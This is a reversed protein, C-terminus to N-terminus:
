HFARLWAETSIAWWLCHHESAGDAVAQYHDALVTSDLWERDASRSAAFLKEITPVATVRLARSYLPYPDTKGMAQRVEPPLLPELARRVLRKEGGVTNLVRQPLALVFEAIRRDSWADSFGVGRLASMRESWGVGWMHMPSFVSRYRQRAAAGLNSPSRDVQAKLAARDLDRWRGVLWPPEGVGHRRRARGALQGALRRLRPAREPPWLEQRMPRWLQRGAIAGLSDDQWDSLTRMERLLTTWRGTWLLSPLDYIAEGAILDGRDGSLVLACGDARAADLCADLLPQYVFLYPDDRDPGHAPYDKLPWLNDAWVNTVPIGWHEALPGSVAREDCEVLEEFAFSYARFEPCEAEGSRLLSGAVAAVSGSDVGGSLLLGVPHVSRLRARVAERFVELFHEAYEEERRYRIRHGPDVDWYRWVRKEGGEVVLAHAPALREIGEYFTWEPPMYPGALYVGVAPEFIRVPVGPVSLIQKVETALLTRGVEARYVLSRMGLADRAGFLRQRGGDWVVFAFDGVLRAACDVGWARYAELILEVDTWEGVERGLGSGLEARNDIRADAVVVVDGAVLPQVERVSEPTVHQSLYGLGVQGEVHVGVGDPGRWRVAEVM